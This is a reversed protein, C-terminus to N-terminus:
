QSPQSGGMAAPIGGATAFAPVAYKRVISLMSPDFVVYNSSGTGARRSGADLYKIGPIGAQQLAASVAPPNATNLRLVRSRDGGVKALAEDYTSAGSPGWPSSTDARISYGRPVSMSRYASEGTPDANVIGTAGPTNQAVVSAQEVTPHFGPVRGNPGIVQYGPGVGADQMAQQVVPHQESLPKDWDLFHQPDAAVHVEYMHGAMPPLSDTGNVRWHDLIRQTQQAPLSNPDKWMDANMASAKDFDGGADNLLSRAEQANLGQPDTALRDRYSKAVGEGEAFYLGHGYAQAGEGTGIKSADFADFDHPSGHFV